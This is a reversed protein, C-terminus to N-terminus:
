EWDVTLAQGGVVLTATESESFAVSISTGGPAKPLSVPGSGGVAAIREGNVILDDGAVAIASAPDVPRGNARVEYHLHPGTSHGTSGVYGLLQGAAVQQGAVVEIRSLHAYFTAIGSGHDVVVLNGYGARPGAFWVTGSMSVGVSEGFDARVDVGTHIRLMGTLPDQRPGFPSNLTSRTAVAAKAVFRASGGPRGDYPRPAGSQVVEVRPAPPIVAGLLPASEPEPEPKPKPAEPAPPATETPAGDGFAVMRASGRKAPPQQAAAVGGLGFAALALLAVNSARSTRNMEVPIRSSEAPAKTSM